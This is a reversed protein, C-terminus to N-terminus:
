GNRREDYIEGSAMTQGEVVAVARRGFEKANALWGAGVGIGNAMTKVSSMLDPIQDVFFASMLLFHGIKNAAADIGHIISAKGTPRDMESVHFTLDDIRTVRITWITRANPTGYDMARIIAKVLGVIMTGIADKTENAVIM